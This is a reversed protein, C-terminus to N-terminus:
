FRPSISIGYRTAASEDRRTYHSLIGRTTLTDVFCNRWKVRLLADCEGKMIYASSGGERFADDVLDPWGPGGFLISDNAKQQSFHRPFHTGGPEDSSEAYIDKSQENAWIWKTVNNNTQCILFRDYINSKMAM